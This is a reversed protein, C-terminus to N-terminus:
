GKSSPGEFGLGRSNFLVDIKKTRNRLLEGQLRERAMALEKETQFLKEQQEKATQVFSTLDHLTQDFQRM